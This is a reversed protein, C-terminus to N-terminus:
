IRWSARDPDCNALKCVLAPPRPSRAYTELVHRCFRSELCCDLFTKTLHCELCLAQM